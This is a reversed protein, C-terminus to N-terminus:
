HGASRSLGQRGEAERKRMAAARAQLARCLPTSPSHNTLMEPQYLIRREKQWLFNVSTIPEAITKRGECLSIYASKGLAFGFAGWRPSAPSISTSPSESFGAGPLTRGDRLGQSHLDTDARASTVTGGVTWRSDGNGRRGAKLLALHWQRQSSREPRELDMEEGQFGCTWAGHCGPRFSARQAGLACGGARPLAKLALLM